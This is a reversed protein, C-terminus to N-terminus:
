KSLEVVCGIHVHVGAELWSGGVREGCVVCRLSDPATDLKETWYTSCVPTIVAVKSKLDLLDSEIEQKYELLEDSTLLAVNVEELEVQKKVLTKYARKWSPSLGMALIM